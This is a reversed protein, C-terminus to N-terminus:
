AKSRSLVRLAYAAALRVPRIAYYLPFLPDPLAVARWDEPAPVVISRYVYNVKGRLQDMARLQFLHFPLGLSFSHRDDPGFLRARVETALKLATRDAQVRAAVRPPLSADLLEQSLALGLLLVRTSRFRAARAFLYDWDLEQVRILETIDALWALREWLHRGGHFCLVLLLDEPAFTPVQLGALPVPRLDRLMVDLDLEGIPFKLTFAQHLEIHPRAGEGDLEVLIYDRILVQAQRASVNEPLHYGRQLLLELARSADARRVLLDLDDM